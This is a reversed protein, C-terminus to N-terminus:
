LEPPRSDYKKRLYGTGDESVLWAREIQECQSAPSDCDIPASRAGM